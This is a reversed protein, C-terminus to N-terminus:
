HEQIEKITSGTIKSKTEADQQKLFPLITACYGMQLMSHLSPYTSYNQICAKRTRGENTSTICFQSLESSKSM